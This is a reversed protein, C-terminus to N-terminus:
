YQYCMMYKILRAGMKKQCDEHIKTSAAGAAKAKLDKWSYIGSNVSERAVMSTFSYKYPEWFTLIKLMRTTTKSSYNAIDVQGSNVAIPM